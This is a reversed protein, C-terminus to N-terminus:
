EREWHQVTDRLDSDLVLDPPTWGRPPETGSRKYFERDSWGKRIRECQKAIQEETPDAVRDHRGGGKAFSGRPNRVICIM